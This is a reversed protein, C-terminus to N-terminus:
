VVHLAAVAAVRQNMGPALDPKARNREPNHDAGQHHHAEPRDGGPSLEGELVIDEGAQDAALGFHL